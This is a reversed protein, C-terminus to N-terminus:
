SRGYLLGACVVWALVTALCGYAARPDINTCSAGLGFASGLGHWIRLGAPITVIGFAWLLWIPSGHQLLDGPDGAREFSGIFIYAGNVVLCFGAL